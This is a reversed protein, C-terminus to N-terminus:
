QCPGHDGFCFEATVAFAHHPCVLVNGDSCSRQCVTSATEDSEVHTFLGLSLVNRFSCRSQLNPPLMRRLGGCISEYEADDALLDRLVKLKPHMDVSM